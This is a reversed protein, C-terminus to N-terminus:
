DFAGERAAIFFITADAAIHALVPLGLGGTHLRLWGLCLGYIGALIAGVTGPPYGERHGYGFLLATIVVAGWKGWWSAVADFLLGRFVVEELLANGLSFLLGAWLLGEGARAFPLALGIHGVPPHWAHQFGLLIGSSAVALVLTAAIGSRSFCGVPWGRFGKRLGPWVLMVLALVGLPVLWFLPWTRFVPTATAATLLALFLLGRWIAAGPTDSGPPGSSTPLDGIESQPKSMAQEPFGESM